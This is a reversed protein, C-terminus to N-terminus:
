KFFITIQFLFRAFNVEQLIWAGCVCSCIRTSYPMMMCMFYWVIYVLTLAKTRRWLMSGNSHKQEGAGSPMAIALHSALLGGDDGVKANPLHLKKRNNNRLLNLVYFKVIKTKQNPNNDSGSTFWWNITESWRGSEKQTQFHQSDDRPWASSKKNTEFIQSIWKFHFTKCKLNLFFFNNFSKKKFNIAM